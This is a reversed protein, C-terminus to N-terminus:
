FGLYAAEDNLWRTPADRALVSRGSLPDCIRPISM